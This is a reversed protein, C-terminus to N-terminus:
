GVPREFLDLVREGIEAAIVTATRDGDLVLLREREAMALFRRRLDAIAAGDRLLPSGGDPRDRNRRLTTAPPVDLMLALHPAPIPAYLRRLLADEVWYGRYVLDDYWYRDCVIHVGRALLPRLCCTYVQVCAGAFLSTVALALEPSQLQPDDIFDRILPYRTTWDISLRTFLCRVGDDRLRDLAAAAARGYSTADFQQAACRYGREELYARLRLLQTSKGAGDLGSVSILRGALVVLTGESAM